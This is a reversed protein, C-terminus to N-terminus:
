GALTRGTWTWVSAGFRKLVADQLPGAQELSRPIAMITSGSGCMMAGAVRPQASLFEKAIKLIPFKRFVPIELDNQLFTESHSAFFEFHSTADKLKQILRSINELKENKFELELNKYAWATASGFGFNMLFVPIAVPFAVPSLIEGRGSSLAPRCRVFFPADSGLEAALKELEDDTLKINWLRNLGLLTASANSSGGGLGAGIPIRKELHIRAGVKTAHRDQLLRAARCVLNDQDTALDLNSCALKIAPRDLPDFTLTDALEIPLMFTELDHYGDTRKGPVRLFINIKAHSQLTLSM